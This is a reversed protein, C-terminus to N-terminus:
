SMIINVIRRLVVYVVALLGFISAGTLIGKAKSYIEKKLPFVPLDVVQILPTEQRVAMKSLELNRVLEGLVAKNTEVSIQARQMPVVRHVQRAPNLNPTADSIAVATYVAGNMVARVSDTKQQLIAVNHLSKKTKTQVYFDNVNKVIKDNFYKAFFEDKGRVEVKIISLKKDPKAVQLYNKKIDEVITNIISDQARNLVQGTKLSFQINKIDDKKSWTERLKNFDIYRDILSQNKKDIEVESLLTKVIMSRSKYLEIINDGQFIGGGGGGLDIGIMSAIGAYQGLGGSSGSEELVFTCAATYQPKKYYAYAFGLAGGFIGSVLIIM